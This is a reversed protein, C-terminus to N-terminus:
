LLKLMERNAVLTQLHLVTMKWEMVFFHYEGFSGDAVKDGTAVGEIVIEADAPVDVDITQCKVVEIPAGRLAGAARAVGREGVERGSRRPVV